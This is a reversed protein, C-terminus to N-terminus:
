EGEFKAPKAFMTYYAQNEEDWDTDLEMDKRSFELHMPGWLVSIKFDGTKTNLDVTVFRDAHKLLYEVAVKAGNENARRWRNDDDEGWEFDKVWLDMAKSM